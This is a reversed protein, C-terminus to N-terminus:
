NIDEGKELKAINAEIVAKNGTDPVRAHAKKLHALAKKYDGLASYGRALCYDVPWTDPHKKANM